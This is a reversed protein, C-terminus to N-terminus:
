APLSLIYGSDGRLIDFPLTDTQELGYAIADGRAVKVREPDLGAPSTNIDTSPAAGDGAPHRLANAWRPLYHCRVEIWAQQVTNGERGMDLYTCVIDEGLVQLHLLIIEDV